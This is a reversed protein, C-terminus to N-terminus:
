KSYKNLYEEAKVEDLSFDKKLKDLIQVKNCGSDLMFSILSKLGQELGKEIGENVGDQYLDELAKCMDIGGNVQEESKLYQQSGLLAKAANYSDVDLNGFYSKNSQVYQALDKKNNKYKLMGFIIQLDTQFCNVDELRKSDILNIQYNPVYKKLFEYEKRDIGLLGHLDIQGDYETDGYYFIVTLVPILHDEKRLGSLFEAGSKLQKKEKKVKKMSNVQETYSLADYLMGRVPMAYNIDQQNECALMVIRTGDDSSMIIDRFRRITIKTGDSEQLVIAQEGNELKLHQASFVQKGQFLSGNILDAFRRKDSLWRKMFIDNNGM